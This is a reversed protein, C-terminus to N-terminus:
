NRFEIPISNNKLLNKDFYKTPEDMHALTNEVHLYNQLYYTGTYKREELDLVITNIDDTNLLDPHITTRTEFPFKKDVLMDLTKFFKESSATKTLEKFKHAPAKYDLAIYDVLKFDIL